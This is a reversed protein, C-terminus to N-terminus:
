LHSVQARLRDAEQRKPALALIWFAAIVAVGVLMGVIVKASSNVDAEPGPRLPTPHLRQPPARARPRLLGPDPRRRRRPPRDRPRAARTPARPLRPQPRPPASPTPRSRPPM